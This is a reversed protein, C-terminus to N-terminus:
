LAVYQGWSTRLTHAFMDKSKHFLLIDELCNVSNNNIHTLIGFRVGPPHLLKIKAVVNPDRTYVVMKTTSDFQYDHKLYGHISCLPNHDKKTVIYRNCCETLLSEKFQKFIYGMWLITKDLQIFEPILKCDAEISNSSQSQQSTCSM